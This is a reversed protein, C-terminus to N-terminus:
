SGNLNWFKQRLQFVRWIKVHFHFPLEIRPNWEHTSDTWTISVFYKFSSATNPDICCQNAEVVNGPLASVAAVEEISGVVFSIEIFDVMVGSLIRHFHHFVDINLHKLVSNRGRFIRNLKPKLSRDDAVGNVDVLDAEFSVLRSPKSPLILLVLGDIAVVASHVICTVDFEDRFRSRFMKVLALVARFIGSSGQLVEQAQSIDLVVIM